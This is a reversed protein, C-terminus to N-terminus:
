HRHTQYEKRVKQIELLEEQLIKKTPSDKWTKGESVLMLELDGEFVVTALAISRTYSQSSMSGMSSSNM